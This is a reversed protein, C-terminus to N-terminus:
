AGALEVVEVRHRGGAKAAYVAQDALGILSDADCRDRRALGVGVSVGVSLVLGDVVFPEDFADTIRRGAGRATEADAVPGLIVTFEDGGFRAVVDDARVAGRLREAVAILLHDGVVHGYADNVDKFHDLDVFAVAVRRGSAAHALRDELEELFAARNLLGTLHDHSAEHELRAQEAGLERLLVENELALRISRATAARMHGQLQMLIVGYIPVALALYRNFGIGWGILLVTTVGGLVVLSRVFLRPLFAGLLVLSNAVAVLVLLQATEVEPRDAAPRLVVLAGAWVAQNVALHIGFTREWRDLAGITAGPGPTVLGVALSPLIVAAAWLVSPVLPARSLVLMLVVSVPTMLALGRAVLMTALTIIFPPMPTKAACVGNFVGFLGAVGLGALMAMLTWAGSQEDSPQMTLLFVTTTGV